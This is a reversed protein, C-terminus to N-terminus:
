LFVANRGDKAFPWTLFGIFLDLCGQPLDTSEERYGPDTVGPLVSVLRPRFRPQRTRRAIRFPANSALDTPRAGASFTRTSTTARRYRNFPFLIRMLFFPWM